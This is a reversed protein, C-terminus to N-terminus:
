LFLKLITYVLSILVFVLIGYLLLSKSKEKAEEDHGGAIFYQFAGWLFVLFGLTFFAPIVLAYVVYRLVELM